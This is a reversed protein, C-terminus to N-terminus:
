HPLNEDARIPWVKWAVGGDPDRIVVALQGTLPDDATVRLFSTAVDDQFLQGCSSLWSVRWGDAVSVSLYVDSKMPVTVDTDSMPAGDVRAEPMIPNTAVGGFWVTKKAYMPDGHGDLFASYVSVPVAADAALGLETRAAALTAADPATVYWASGDSSVVQRLSEPGDIVAAQSPVAVETPADVHSVLGDITAREGPMIMPPSARVAVIRDHDLQWRADIQDICAASMCAVVIVLVIRM